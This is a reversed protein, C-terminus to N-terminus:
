PYTISEDSNFFEDALIQNFKEANLIYPYHGGASLSHIRATPYRMRVEMQNQADIILDDECDIITLRGQMPALKSTCNALTLMRAQLYPAYFPKRLVDLQVASLESLGKEQVSKEIRARWMAQLDSASKTKAHLPNFMDTALIRTADLFSNAIVTSALLAPYRQAFCQALYGGLSTGFLYLRTIGLEQLLRHLSACIEAPESIPPYNVSVIRYRPSFQLIQKYFTECTGLAGPLMLLPTDGTGADILEWTLGDIIVTKVPHSARLNLLAVPVAIM